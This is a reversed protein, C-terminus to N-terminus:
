ITLNRAKDRPLVCLSWWNRRLSCTRCTLCTIFHVGHMHRHKVKDYDDMAVVRVRFRRRRAQRGIREAVDEACGTESGYLVLLDRPSQMYTHRPLSVFLFQSRQKQLM